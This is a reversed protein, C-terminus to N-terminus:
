RREIEFHYNEGNRNDLAECGADANRFWLEVSVADAPVGVEIPVNHPSDVLGGYTPHTPFGVVSEHSYQEGPWFRVHAQLDWAPIRVHTRAGSAPDFYITYSASRCPLEGNRPQLMRGWAYEIRLRGGAVIDGHQEVEGRGPFRLIPDSIPFEADPVGGDDLDDSDPAAADPTVPHAVDAVSLDVIRNREGDASGDRGIADSRTEGTDAVALIEGDAPRSDLLADIQGDLRRAPNVGQADPRGTDPIPRHVGADVVNPATRPSVDIKSDLENSDIPRTDSATTSDRLHASSVVDAANSDVPQNAAVDQHFPDDDIRSGHEAICGIASVVSLWVITRCHWGTGAM